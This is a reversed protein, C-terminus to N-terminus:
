HVVRDKTYLEINAWAEDHSIINMMGNRYSVVTDSVRKKAEKTSIAPYGDDVLDYLMEKLKEQINIGNDIINKYLSDELEIKITQM